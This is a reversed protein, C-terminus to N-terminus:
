TTTTTSLSTIELGFEANGITSKTWPNSTDPNVEWLKTKYIYDSSLFEEDGLYDSGGIRVLDKIGTHKTGTKKAYNSLQVGVIEGNIGTTPITFSDKDGVANGDNYTTDDDPFEDDVNEYNTGASPTFDSYTGNANPYKTVVKIDGLLQSSDVYLDDYYVSSGSYIAFFRIQKINAYSTNQTDQSTLNLAEVGNIKLLVEGGSNDVKVYIELYQWNSIALPISSEGLYTTTSRRFHLIASSDVHLYCQENGYQDLFLILPYSTSLTIAGPLHKLGVGMYISQYGTKLDVTFSETASNLLVSYGTYRGSYTGFSPSSYYAGGKAGWESLSDYHDFGELLILAM